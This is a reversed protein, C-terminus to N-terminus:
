KVLYLVCNQTAVLSFSVVCLSRLVSRKKSKKRKKKEKKHKKSNKKHKKKRKKSKEESASESDSSSDSSSELDSSSESDSSSSSSKHRKKEEKKAILWFLLSKSILCNYIFRLFILKDLLERHQKCSHRLTSRWLVQLCLKQFFVKEWAFCLMHRSIPLFTEFMKHRRLDFTSFKYQWFNTYSHINESSIKYLM